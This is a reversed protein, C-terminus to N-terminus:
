LQRLRSVGGRQLGVAHGLADQAPRLPLVVTTPLLVALRVVHQGRGAVLSETPFGCATNARHRKLLQDTRPWWRSMGRRPCRSEVAVPDGSDVSVVSFTPKKRTKNKGTQFPLLIDAVGSVGMRGRALPARPTTTKRVSGRFVGFVSFVSSKSAVLGAPRYIVTSLFTALYRRDRAELSGLFLEKWLLFLRRCRLWHITQQM